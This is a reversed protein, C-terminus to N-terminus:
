KLLGVLLNIKAFSIAFIRKFKSIEFNYSNFFYLICFVLINRLCIRGKGYQKSKATNSQLVANEPM